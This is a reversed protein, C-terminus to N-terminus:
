ANPHFFSVFFSYSCAITSTRNVAVRVLVMCSKATESLSLAGPLPLVVKRVNYAQAEAEAQSVEHVVGRRRGPRRSVGQAGAQLCPARTHALARALM